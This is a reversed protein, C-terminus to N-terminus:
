KKIKKQQENHKRTTTRSADGGGDFAYRHAHQDMTNQALNQGLNWRHMVGDISKEIIGKPINLMRFFAWAQFSYSEPIVPKKFVFLKPSFSDLCKEFCIGFHCCTKHQVFTKKIYKGISVLNNVAKKRMRERNVMRKNSNYHCLLKWGKIIQIRHIRPSHKWRTIWRQSMKEDEPSM